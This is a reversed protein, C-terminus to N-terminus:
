GDPTKITVTSEKHGKKNARAAPKSLEGLKERVHDVYERVTGVFPRNKKVMPTSVVHTAEGGSGAFKQAGSLAEHWVADILRGDKDHARHITDITANAQEHEGNEIHKGLKTILKRVPHSDGWGLAKTAGHYIRLTDIKGGSAAQAAGRKLSFSGIQQEKGTKPNKVVFKAVDAKAVVPKAGKEIAVEYKKTGVPKFSSGPKWHKKFDPHNAAASVSGAYAHMEHYYHAKSKKLKVSGFFENAPINNFNLPHSPDEKAKEMESRLGEASTIGTALSHNGLRIFAHEDNYKGVKESPPKAIHDMPITFPEGQIEVKVHATDEKGKIGFIPTKSIPKVPTGDAVPTGNKLVIRPVRKKSLYTMAGPVRVIKKKGKGSEAEVHQKELHPGAYKEWHRNVTSENKRKSELRKPKYVGETSDDDEGVGELIYQLFGIM